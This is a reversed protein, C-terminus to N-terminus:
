YRYQLSKASYIKLIENTTRAMLFFSILDDVQVVSGPVVADGSETLNAMKIYTSDWPQTLPTYFCEVLM